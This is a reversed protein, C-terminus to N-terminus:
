HLAAREPARSRGEGSWCRTRGAEIFPWGSLPPSRLVPVRYRSDSFRLGRHLAVREPIAVSRVSRRGLRRTGRAEIFHRGILPAAIDLRRYRSLPATSAKIFPWGSLPSSVERSYGLARGPRAKIFPRGSLVAQWAQCRPSSSSCGVEIFPWGSLPPSMHGDIVAHVYM